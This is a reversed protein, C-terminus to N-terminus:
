IGRTTRDYNSRYRGGQRATVWNGKPLFQTPGEVADKSLANDKASATEAAVEDAPMSPMIRRRSRFALYCAVYYTFAPPWAAYDTGYESDNSIYQIYISDIEAYWFGSEEVYQSYPSNFFEDSCFRSLKIYDSPKEFARSYGWAPTVSPSYDLKSSRQAFKWHGQQLCYDRCQTWVQDLIRRPETNDTVTDLKREGLIYLADNYLSLQTTAM